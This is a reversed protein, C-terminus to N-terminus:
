LDALFHLSMGFDVLFVFALLVTWKLRKRTRLDKRILCSAVAFFPILYIAALCFPWAISYDHSFRPLPKWDPPLLSDHLLGYPVESLFLKPLQILVFVPFEGLFASELFPLTAISLLCYFLGAFLIVKFFIPRFIHSDNQM